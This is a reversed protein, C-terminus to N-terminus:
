QSKVKPLLDRHTFVLLRNDKVVYAVAKNVIRLRPKM